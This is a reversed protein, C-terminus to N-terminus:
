CENRALIEDDTNQVWLHTLSNYVNQVHPLPGLLGAPPSTQCGVSRNVEKQHCKQTINSYKYYSQIQFRFYCDLTPSLPSIKPWYIFFKSRGSRSTLSDQSLGVPFRPRDMRGPKM